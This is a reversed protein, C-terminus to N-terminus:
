GEEDATSMDDEDDSAEHVTPEKKLFSFSSSVPMGLSWCPCCGKGVPNKGFKGCIERLSMDTSMVRFTWGVSPESLSLHVLCKLWCESTAAPEGENQELCKLAKELAARRSKLHPEWLSLRIQAREQIHKPSKPQLIQRKQGQSKEHGFFVRAM